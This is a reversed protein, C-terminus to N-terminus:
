ISHIGFTHSAFILLNHTAQPTKEKKKELYVFSIVIKISM